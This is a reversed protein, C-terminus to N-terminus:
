RQYLRSGLASAELERDREQGRALENALLGCGHADVTHQRALVVHVFVVARTRVHEDHVVFFVQALEDGQSELMVAKTHAGLVGTTACELHELALHHIGDDQVQAQLVFVPRSRSASIWFRESSKGTTTSVAWPLMSTATSAM